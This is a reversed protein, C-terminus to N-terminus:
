KKKVTGRVDTSHTVSQEENIEQSATYIDPFLGEIDEPKTIGARNLHVMTAIVMSLTYKDRDTLDSTMGPLRCHVPMRVYQEIANGRLLALDQPTFPM